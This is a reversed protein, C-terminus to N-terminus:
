KIEFEVSFYKHKLDDLFASKVLRYEGKELEGYLWSWDEEMMLEHNKDVYFAPMNWAVDGDVAYEREQWKGDTKQDIRYWLGYTYREGSYDTILITARKNPLTGEVITM